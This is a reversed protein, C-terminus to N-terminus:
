QNSHSIFMSGCLKFLVRAGVNADWGELDYESEPAVECLDFGVVKKGSTSLWYLLSEMQSFNLGGPVPTGTNPCLDPQLGDIDFSIYVHDTLKSFAEECVQKWTEGNHLRLQTQSDYYCHLAPHEICYDKEEPCFDRIGMQVLSQPSLDQVVNYMISAHSHTYGQYAKRLDHHADIHLISLDKYKESLARILGYPSSHDGGISAVFKNDELHAKATKYLWDNLDVSAKNIENQIELDEGTIQDGKELLERLYLAKEKLLKSRNLVDVSTPEQYIGLKYFEGYLADCLDLQKSAKFIADPGLSTGHGYSTTVEWPVPIIVLSAEEKSFPLAFLGSDSQGTSNPNFTM